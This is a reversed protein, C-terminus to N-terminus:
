IRVQTNWKARLFGKEDINSVFFGVEDAHAVVAYHEGKGPLTATLNGLKDRRVVQTFRQLAEQVYDQVLDERGVPGSIVCLEELLEFIAKTL